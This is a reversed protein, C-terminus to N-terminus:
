SLSSKEGVFACLFHSTVDAIHMNHSTLHVWGYTEVICLDSIDEDEDEDGDFAEYDDLHLPVPGRIQQHLRFSLIWVNGERATQM